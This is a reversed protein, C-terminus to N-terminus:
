QCVIVDDHPGCAELGSFSNRYCALGSGCGDCRDDCGDLCENLTVGNCRSACEDFCDDYEADIAFYDCGDCPESGGGGGCAAIGLALACLLVRLILM